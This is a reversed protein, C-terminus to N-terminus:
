NTKTTNPSAVTDREILYTSLSITKSLGSKKKEETLLQITNKAIEAVPFAVSTLSPTMIGAVSDDLGVLSVDEPVQIQHEYLYRSIGVMVPDASIIATPLGYEEVYAAIARYGCSQTYDAVPVFRADASLQMANVASNFGEIRSREVECANDPSFFAIKRHGHKFLHKVALFVAEKSNIMIKDVGFVDPFREIMVVPISISTLLRRFASIDGSFDLCNFIIGKLNLQRTSELLHVVNDLEWGPAFFTLAYWGLKQIEGCLTELISLFLWNHDPQSPPSIILVQPIGNDSSRQTFDYGLSEAAQLVLEKKEDSAYGSGRLVRTVTAPSVGAAEAIDQIRPKKM